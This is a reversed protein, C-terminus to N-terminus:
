KVSCSLSYPIPTSVQCSGLHLQLCGQCATGRWIRCEPPGTISPVVPVELFVQLETSPLGGELSSPGQWRQLQDSGM